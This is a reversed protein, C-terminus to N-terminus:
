GRGADVAAAIQDSTAQTHGIAVLVGSKAAKRIFDIAEPYEPSLTVLKILGRAASQLTEFEQWNPVRVHERPHAGRPGDDPAIYPGELHIGAMRRKVNPLKAYSEAMVAMSRALLDHGATTCTPLLKTTGYRDLGCCVKEVGEITLDAQNFDIGGFGNVQLDVFGPAVWPLRSADGVGRAPLIKKITAAGSPGEWLIRVPQQTDYRRALIEHM